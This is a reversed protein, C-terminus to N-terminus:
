GSGAEPRVNLEAILVKFDGEPATTSAEPTSEPTVAVESENQSDASSDPEASTTTEKEDVGEDELAEEQLASSETPQISSSLSPTAVETSSESSFIATSAASGFTFPLALALFIATIQIWRTSISSGFSIYLAFIGAALFLLTLFPVPVVLIGGLFVFGLGFLTQNLRTQERFWKL